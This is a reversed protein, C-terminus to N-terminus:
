KFRNYFSNNLLALTRNKLLGGDTAKMFRKM